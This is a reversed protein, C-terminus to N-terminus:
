TGGAADSSSTSGAIAQMLLPLRKRTSTTRAVIQKFCMETPMQAVKRPPSDGLAAIRSCRRPGKNYLAEGDRVLGLEATADSTEFWESVRGVVGVRLVDALADGRPM